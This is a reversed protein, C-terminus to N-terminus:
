ARAVWGRFALGAYFLEVNNFGGERLIAQDMDPSVIPLRSAIAARAAEAKDPEVGSAVAFAAYRSLWRERDDPNQPFSLHALVFPAGPVLRRRVESVIHRRENLDLFHMTLLCTAADFQTDPAADIGGHHLRVRSGLRGLTQKALELMKASPDVGDFTWGPHAQALAQLELGGGAGVVLVKASATVREAVLVAVMRHLTADGPVVRRPGEAYRAVAHSDSFSDESM